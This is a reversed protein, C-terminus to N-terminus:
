PVKRTNKHPSPSLRAHLSTLVSSTLPAAFTGGNIYMYESAGRWRVRVSTVVRKEEQDHGMRVFSLGVSMVVGLGGDVMTVAVLDEISGAGEEAPFHGNDFTSVKFFSGECDSYTPIDVEGGAFPLRVASVRM